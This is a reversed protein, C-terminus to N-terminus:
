EGSHVIGKNMEEGERGRDQSASFNRYGINYIYWIYICAGYIIYIYVGCIYM